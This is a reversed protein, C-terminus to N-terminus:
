YRYKRWQMFGAFILVISSVGLLLWWYWAIGIDKKTVQESPQTAKDDPEVSAPETHGDATDGEVTTEDPLGAPSEEEPLTTPTEEKGAPPQNGLLAFTTFHSIKATATRQVTDVTTELLQWEGATEDYWAIILDEEATGDPLQAPNYPVTLNVSPDFVAGDPGLNWAIGVISRDQPPEPVDKSEVMSINELPELDSTLGVTGAPIALTIGADDPAITVTRYFRGEFSVFSRIDTTGKPLAPEEAPPTYSSPPQSPPLLNESSAVYTSMHDMLLGITYLSTGNLNEVVLVTGGPVYVTGDKEGNKGALEYKGTTKNFYYIDPETASEVRVTTVFDQDFNITQDPNGMEIVVATDPLDTHVTTDPKVVRPPNITGSYAAGGSTISTAPPIVVSIEANVDVNKTATEDNDTTLTVQVPITGTTEIVTSTTTDETTTEDITFPDTVIYKVSSVDNTGSPTTVQIDYEGAPLAPATVIILTDNEIIFTVADTGNIKVGTVGTFHEGTIKVGPKETNSAALNPAVNTVVPMPEPAKTVEYSVDSLKSTGNNNIVRIKYVGEPVGAPITAKLSAATVETVGTLRIVESGKVLRVIPTGANLNSGTITIQRAEGNHTEAPPTIGSIVPLENITSLPGTVTIVSKNGAEDVAQVAFWYQAGPVLNTVTFTETKGSVKPNMNNYIETADAFNDEDIVSSSRKIIYKKAFGTTGDDGTATWSLNIRTTAPNGAAASLGTVAGPPTIDAEVQNKAKTTVEITCFTSNTNQYGISLAFYYKTNEKLGRVIMQQEKGEAPAPEGTIRTAKNWDANTVIPSTAYRFDLYDGDWTGEATWTLIVSSAATKEAPVAPVTLQKLHWPDFVVAGAVMSAIETEDSTGWWNRTADLIFGNTPTGIIQIGYAANGEFFNKSVDINDAADYIAFNTDRGDYLETLDLRIADWGNNYLKNDTITHNNNLPGMYIGNKENDHIRNGTITLNTVGMADANKYDGGIRIVAIGNGYKQTSTEGSPSSPNHHINNNRITLNSVGGSIEIGSRHAGCIENDEIVTGTYDANAPSNYSKASGWVFVDNGNGLCDFIKNGSVVTNTIGTEDDPYRPSAFYLGMRGATGDQIGPTGNTNPGIINNQIIINDLSNDSSAGDHAKGTTANLRILHDNTSQQLANISQVIFGKFIVDDSV